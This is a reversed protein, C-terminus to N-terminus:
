IAIIRMYYHYQMAFANKKNKNHLFRAVPLDRLASMYYYLSNDVHKHDKLSNAGALPAYNMTFNFYVCM